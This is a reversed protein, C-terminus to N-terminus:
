NKPNPSGNTGEPTQGPAYAELDFAPNRGPPVPVKTASWTGDGKNTGQVGNVWVSYTPDSIKGSLNVTPQWVADPSVDDMTLVLASQTISINTVSHNGVVDTVSISYVNTGANLPLNELWFNGDRDVAGAYHNTNGNADVASAAVIATPDSIKGLCTFNTGSVALGNAPWAIQVVPPNTKSSYDLTFYFNTEAANGAWDTARITIINLGNTLSIDLCCFFNTTIEGLGLDYHTDTVLAQQGTLIGAANSLGYSISGLDRPSYGALQLVPVSVAAVATNNVVHVPPSTVVIVPPTTVLRVEKIVQSVAGNLSQFYFTIGKLGDNTGLDVVPNPNFPVWTGADTNNTNVLIMMSASPWGGINANVLENRTVLSQFSVTFAQRIGLAIANYNAEIDRSELQYNYTELDALVGRMQSGGSFDSGVAFGLNTMAFAPWNPMWNVNRGSGISSTDVYLCSYNTGYVLVVQHWTNSAWGIPEASQVTVVGNSSTNFTLNTGDPGIAVWWEYTGSANTFAADILRGENGPGSGGANASSWDPRFWWVVSGRRLDINAPYLNTSVNTEVDRYVLLAAANTDMWLGNASWAPTRGLNTAVLPLQGRWGAWNTTAFNWAGLRASDNLKLVAQASSVNTVANDLIVTYTGADADSVDAVSLTNNTVGSIRASPTLNSGNLQWHYTMGSRSLAAIRFFVTDAAAVTQGQPQSIIAPYPYGAIVDSQALPCNFTTLEDFVGGAQGDGSHESGLTFGDALRTALDPEFALGPGSAAPAGDIFLVTENSSYSLVIQHWQNPVWGGIAATLYTTLVGNSGSVFSLGNELPDTKLAWGGGPSYVDGLEFLCGPEHALYDVELGGKWYPRFWFRVAGESGNLNASADPELYNYALKAGFTAGKLEAGTTWPTVPNLVGDCALPPWGRSSAFTSIPNTVTGSITGQNTGASDLANSQGTRSDAASVRNFSWYGLQSPGTGCPADVASNMALSNTTVVFFDTLASSGCVCNVQYVAPISINLNTKEAHAGNLSWGSPLDTPAVHPTPTADVELTNQGNTPNTQVLFTRTGPTSNSIEFWNRTNAPALSAVAVVVFTNSISITYTGGCPPSNSYTYYFVNTGVGANTPTFFFGPGGNTMERAEWDVVNWNTLITSYALSAAAATNGNADFGAEAVLGPVDTWTASDFAPEGIVFSASQVAVQGGPSSLCASSTVVVPPQSATGVIANDAPAQNSQTTFAPLM